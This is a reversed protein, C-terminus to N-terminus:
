RRKARVCAIFAERVESNRAESVRNWFSRYGNSILSGSQLAITVFREAEAVDTIRPSHFGSAPEAKVVPGFREVGGDGGRVAFQLAHQVGPFSGFYGTVEVRDSGDMACVVGLGVYQGSDGVEGRMVYTVTDPVDLAEIRTIEPTPWTTDAHGTIPLMVHLGLLLVFEAKM